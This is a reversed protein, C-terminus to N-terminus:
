SEHMEKQLATNEKVVSHPFIREYLGEIHNGIEHRIELDESIPMWMLKFEVEFACWMWDTMIAHNREYFAVRRERIHREADDKAFKPDEVELIFGAMPLLKRLEQMFISGLGEGRRADNVAYYDLLIIESDKIRVFSAYALITDGDVMAYVYISENAYMEEFTKLSRLEARPFDSLLHENYLREFGELPLGIIPYTM